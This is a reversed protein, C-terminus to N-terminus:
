ISDLEMRAKDLTEEVRDVMVRLDQLDLARLDDGNAGDYENDEIKSIQKRIAELM